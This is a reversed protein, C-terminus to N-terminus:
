GHLHVVSSDALLIVTESLYTSRIRWRGPWRHDIVGLRHSIWSCDLRGHVSHSARFLETGIVIHYTVLIPLCTEYTPTGKKM